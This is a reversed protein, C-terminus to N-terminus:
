DKAIIYKGLDFSHHEDQFVYGLQNSVCYTHGITADINRHSHGYIWYEIPSSAIYNGLEVTFAGNLPSGKFEDAMLQCSPVHHTAVIIHKAKSKAISNKLFDLCKNHENNFREWTLLDNGSRIRHFDSVSNETIYADQPEIKSWLTTAILESDEALPVVVNYLCKVNERINYEWGNYLQEIDFQKYFEHNGPIVIVREFNDSAWSWFPHKDYNDDGLYGIDGALLLMDGVVKLPHSKIYRSNEAFELHLDSAYQIKIM